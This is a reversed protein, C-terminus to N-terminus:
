TAGCIMPYFGKTTVIGTPPFWFFLIFSIDNDYQHGRVLCRWQIPNSKKQYQILINVVGCQSNEYPCEVMPMKIKWM